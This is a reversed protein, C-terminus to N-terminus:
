ISARVESINECDPCIKKRSVDSLNNKIYQSNELYKRFLMNGMLTGKKNEKVFDNLVYLLEPSNKRVAFAIEGNIRLKVKNQLRINSFIGDWFRAKHNDMVIMPILGTNVMELLDEDELYEDVL